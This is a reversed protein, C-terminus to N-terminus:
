IRGEKPALEFPPYFLSLRSTDCRGPAGIVRGVTYMQQLASVLVDQADSTRSLKAELCFLLRKQMLAVLVNALTCPTHWTKKSSVYAISVHTGSKCLIHQSRRQGCSTPPRLLLVAIASSSIGRTMKVSSKSGGRLNYSETIDKTKFYVM